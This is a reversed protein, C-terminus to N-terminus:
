ALTNISRAVPDLRIEFQECIEDVSNVAFVPAGAASTAEAHNKQPVAVTVEVGRDVLSKLDQLALGIKKSVHNIAGVSRNIPNVTGTVLVAGYLEDVQETAADVGQALRGRALLAHALFVGLQWSEGGDIPGSVEMRFTGHRGLVREIAGTNGHVFRQYEKRASVAVEESTGTLLMVSLEGSEPQLHTIRVPGETTAIFVAIKM